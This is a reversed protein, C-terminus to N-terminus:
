VHGRRSEEVSSEVVGNYKLSQLVDEPCDNILYSVREWDDIQYANEIEKEYYAYMSPTRKNM